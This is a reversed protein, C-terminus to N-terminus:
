QFNVPIRNVIEGTNANIFIKERRLGSRAASLQPPLTEDPETTYEATTTYTLVPQNDTIHITLEPSSLPHPETLSIASLADIGVKLADKSTMVPVTNLDIEAHFNGSTMTLLHDGTTQVIIQRNFVPLNHYTQQFKYFNNQFKDQKNTLLTLGDDASINFHDAGAELIYNGAEGPNAM